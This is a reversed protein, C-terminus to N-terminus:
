GVAAQILTYGVVAALLGVAVSLAANGLAQRYARQESLRVTEYSFTSYTTFAGCFGTGALLMWSQALGAGTLGGLLLCGSINVVMTGWPMRSTHRAQVARDLLYRVPAGVAAGAIVLVTNM